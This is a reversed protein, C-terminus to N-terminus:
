ALIEKLEQNEAAEYATNGDPGKISKDAGVSLLYKVVEVHDLIYTLQITKILTLIHLIESVRM